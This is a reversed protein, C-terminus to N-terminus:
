RADDIAKEDGEGIRFRFSFRFICSCGTRVFVCCGGVVIGRRVRESGSVRM